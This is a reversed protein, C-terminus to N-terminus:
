RARPNLIQRDRDVAALLDDLQNSAIFSDNRVAEVVVPGLIIGDELRRGPPQQGGVDSAANGVVDGHSAASNAAMDGRIGTPCLLTVGIGEDQVETRLNRAYGALAHKVVGYPGLDLGRPTGHLAAGAGTLVIHGEPNRRLEPLFVNVSRIQSLVARDWLWNWEAIAVADLRRQLIVGVTNALLDVTGFTEVCRNRLAELSTEDTSDVPAAIATGGVEDRVASAAEGDLDAVVVNLHEAALGHSIGRGVGGGGGIVVATKGALVEM